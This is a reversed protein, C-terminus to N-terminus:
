LSTSTQSREVEVDAQGAGEQHPTGRSKPENDLLLIYDETDRTIVPIKVAERRLGEEKDTLEGRLNLTEKVREIKRMNLDGTEKMPRVDFLQSLIRKRSDM